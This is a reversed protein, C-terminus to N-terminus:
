FGRPREASLFVPVTLQESCIFTDTFLKIMQLIWIKIQVAAKAQCYCNPPCVEHEEKIIITGDDCAVGHRIMKDCRGTAAVSPFSEFASM